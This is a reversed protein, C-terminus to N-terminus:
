AKVHGYLVIDEDPDPEFDSLVLKYNFGSVDYDEGLSKINAFHEWKTKGDYDMQYIKNDEIKFRYTNEDYKEGCAGCKIYVTLRGEESFELYYKAKEEGCKECKIQKGEWLSAKDGTSNSIIISLDSYQELKEKAPGYTEISKYQRVAEGYNFLYYNKNALLYTCEVAKDASDKYGEKSLSTFQELAKAYDKKELLEVAYSYFVKFCENMKESSDKYDEAKRFCEIATSFDKEKICKEGAQYYMKKYQLDSDSYGDLKKYEEAAEIYNEAEELLLAKSYICVKLNKESDMFGGLKQFKEAAADYKEAKMEELASSYDIYPLLFGFVGFAVAGIALLILIAIIVKKTRYKKEQKLLQKKYEANRKEFEAKENDKNGNQMAFSQIQQKVRSSEEEYADKQKELAEISTNNKLWEADVGCVCCTKEDGWNFTGCACLWHDREFVPEFMLRTGDIGSRSCLQQFQKNYDGQVTFISEQELKINFRGDNENEWVQNYINTVQRIFYEVSRTEINPVPIKRNYGFDLNREVDLGSYTIDSIIDLVNRQEDYCVVDFTISRMNDPQINLFKASTFLEGKKKDLFLRTASIVIPSGRFWMSDSIEEIPQYDAEAMFDGRNRNSKM